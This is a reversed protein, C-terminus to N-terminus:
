DQHCHITMPGLVPLSFPQVALCNPCESLCRSVWIWNQKTFHGERGLLTRQVKCCTVTCPSIYCCCLFKHELNNRGTKKRLFLKTLVSSLSFPLAGFRESHWISRYKFKQFGAFSSHLCFVIFGRFVLFYLFLTIDAADWGGLRLESGEMRCCPKPPFMCVDGIELM